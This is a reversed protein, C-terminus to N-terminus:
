RRLAPRYGCLREVTRCRPVDYFRYAQQGSSASKEVADHERRPPHGDNGIFLDNPDGDREDARALSRPMRSGTQGAVFRVVPFPAPTEREPVDIMRSTSVIAAKAQIPVGPKTRNPNTNHPATVASASEAAVDLDRWGRAPGDRARTSSVGECRPKTIGDRRVTDSTRPARATTQLEPTEARDSRRSAGVRLQAQRDQERANEAERQEEARRTNNIDAARPTARPIRQHERRREDDHQTEQNPVRVRNTVKLKASNYRCFLLSLKRGQVDQERLEDSNAPIQGRRDSARGRRLADQTSAHRLEYQDHEEV